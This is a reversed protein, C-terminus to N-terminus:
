SQCDEVSGHYTRWSLIFLPDVCPAVVLGIARRRVRIRCGSIVGTNM